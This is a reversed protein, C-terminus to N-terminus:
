KKPGKRSTEWLRRFEEQFLAVVEPDDIIVANEANRHSASWTANFSGTAVILGDVVSFKHHMLGRGAGYRVAVGAAELRSADSAPHRAQRPDVVVKVDVGRLHAGILAEAYTDLTLAYMAVQISLRAADLHAILPKDISQRPAFYVGLVEALGQRVPLSAVVLLLLAALTVIARHLRM